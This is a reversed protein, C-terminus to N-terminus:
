PASGRAHHIYAKRAIREAEDLEARQAPTWYWGLLFRVSRALWITGLAGAQKRTIM